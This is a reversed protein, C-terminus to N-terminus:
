ESVPEFNDEFYRAAVLWREAHNLPNRAIMDGPRPSGAYADTTAVSIGSMDDHPEWPRAESLQRRRYQKFDAM